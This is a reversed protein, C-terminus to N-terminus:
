SATAWLENPLFKRTTARVTKVLDDRGPCDPIADIAIGIQDMLKEVAGRVGLSLAINPRGLRKDQGAPKGMEQESSTVDCIDDAMQFAFGLEMGFDAWDSAKREGAALAGMVTVGAFLAGTKARHYAKLDPYDEEEWAQGACLGHPMGIAKALERTLAPLNEPAHACGVALEDFALIILADGALVATPEGFARHISPKGRRVLANDFAPLDDHVLSACHMLEIACAVSLTLNYDRAGCAHAVSLALRPRIRAGGPMVADRMAAALHPPSEAQDTRALAAEITAEIATLSLASPNSNRDTQSASKAELAM